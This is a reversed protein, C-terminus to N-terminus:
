NTGAKLYATIPMEITLVPSAQGAEGSRSLRVSNITVLRNMKMAGLQYLFDVITAYRGEMSMSFVRTQFASLAEPTEAAAPPAAGGAQGGAGAQPAATGVQGPSVSKIIFGYDGTSKQQDAVLREVEELYNGVFQDPTEGGGSGVNGVLEQMQRQREAVQQQLKPLEKIAEELATLEDRKQQLQGEATKRREWKESWDFMYFGAGILLMALIAIILKMPTTM